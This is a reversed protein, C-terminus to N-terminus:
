TKVLAKIEKLSTTQKADKDERWRLFRPFRLAYGTGATHLPSKTIESGIIEAVVEPKFWVDAKMKSNLESPKEDVIYKKFMKPMKALMEDTFGTGLKTITEYKGSKKNYIACLLAGYQGRRRGKGLFAGVVVVDITDMLGKVYEKKWKIWLWGRTGPRYVSDEAMSKAIIGECHRKLSKEFFQTVKKLDDTQVQVALKLNSREKTIKELAKRREPYPKDIYNRNNLFLLDFVFLCVPIEAAYKEIDYKRRRRMLLQFPQLVGKKCAVAEGELIFSKAKVNKVYRVVDPFQETIDDLRRSFIKVEKGDYHIQMREGDYKEEATMMGPINKRLEELSKVRQALMMKIPSGVKIKIKSVAKVGKEALVKAVYGSDTCLNFANEIADKAEKSGTFAISLGDLVSMTAVGLRLTGLVIRCIYKAESRSSNALLGALSRLKIGQSGKGSAAAIKNLEGFVHEVSLGSSRSKLSQYATEGIDGTKKYIAKVDKEEKNAAMAIAKVVMKDAMGIVLDSYEPAIKGLTMYVVKDIEKKKTKKFLDALIARIANGSSVKELDEFYEALKNFKM